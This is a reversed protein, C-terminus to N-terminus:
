PAQDKTPLDARRARLQCVLIEALEPQLTVRVAGEELPDPRQPRVYGREIGGINREGLREVRREDRRIPPERASRTVRRLYLYEALAWVGSVTVAFSRGIMTREVRSPISATPDASTMGHEAHTGESKVAACAFIMLPFWTGWRWQSGALRLKATM